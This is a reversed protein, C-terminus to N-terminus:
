IDKLGKKSEILTRVPEMEAMFEEFGMDRLYIAGYSRRMMPNPDEYFFEKGLLSV